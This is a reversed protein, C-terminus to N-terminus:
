KTEESIILNIIMKMICFAPIKISLILISIYPEVNLAKKLITAAGGTGGSVIDLPLLLVNYCVASLLLALTMITYDSAINKIRLKQLHNM